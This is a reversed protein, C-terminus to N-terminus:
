WKEWVVQGKKKAEWAENRFTFLQSQQFEGCHSPVGDWIYKEFYYGKGSDREDDPSYVLRIDVRGEM